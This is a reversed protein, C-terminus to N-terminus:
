LFEVVTIDRILVPEVTLDPDLVPSLIVLGIVADIGIDELPSPDSRFSSKMVRVLERGMRCDLKPDLLM